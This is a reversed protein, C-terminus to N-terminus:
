KSKGTKLYMKWLPLWDKKFVALMVVDWYRGRKFINRKRIGEIQYGCRLNYKLSRKNFSIVSSCIKYLNLGNFAYNLLTMKADTGYGKGWYDKEGIIAGTTAIRDKWRIDHLGMSGILIGDKTEIALVVSKDDKGLAKFWEEEQNESQPLFVLIFDRIEPDNIWRTLAPIDERRFPRLNVKHGLLFIPRGTETKM